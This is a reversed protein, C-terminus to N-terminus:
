KHLVGFCGLSHNIVVLVKSSLRVDVQSHVLQVGVRHGFRALNMSPCFNKLLLTM